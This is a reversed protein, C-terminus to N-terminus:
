EDASRLLAVIDSRHVWQREDGTRLIFGKGLGDRSERDLVTGSVFGEGDCFEVVDGVEVSQTEM